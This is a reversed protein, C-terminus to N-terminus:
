IEKLPFFINEVIKENHFEFTGFDKLFYKKGSKWFVSEKLGAPTVFGDTSKLTMITNKIVNKLEPYTIGFQILKSEDATFICDRNSIEVSETNSIQNSQQQSCGILVSGFVVITAILVLLRFSMM